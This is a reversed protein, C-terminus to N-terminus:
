PSDATGEFDNMFRLHSMSVKSAEGEDRKRLLASDGSTPSFATVPLQAAAHANGGLTASSRMAHDAVVPSTYGLGATIVLGGIWSGLANGLNV